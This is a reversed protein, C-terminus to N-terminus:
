PHAPRFIFLVGEEFSTFQSSVFPADVLRIGASPIGHKEGHFSHEPSLDRIRRDCTDNFAACM